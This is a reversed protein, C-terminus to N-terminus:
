AVDILKSLYKLVHEDLHYVDPGPKGILYGQVRRVGLEHLRKLSIRSNEEIGEIVVRQQRLGQQAVKLVYEITLEGFDGLLIDRDVKVYAPNLGALRASTANGVGFDDIAFNVEFERMFMQLRDKFTVPRFHPADGPEVPPIPAKESLELPIQHGNMIKKESIVEKVARYYATRMLSE